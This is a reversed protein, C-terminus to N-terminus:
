IPSDIRSEEHAQYKIAVAYSDTHEAPVYGHHYQVRSLGLNDPQFCSAPLCRFLAFQSTLPM